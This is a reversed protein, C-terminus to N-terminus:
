SYPNSSTKLNEEPTIETPPFIQLYKIDHIRANLSGDQRMHADTPRRCMRTKAFQIDTEVAFHRVKVKIRGPTTIQIDRSKKQKSTM